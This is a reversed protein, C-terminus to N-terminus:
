DGWRYPIGPIEVFGDRPPEPIAPFKTSHFKIIDGM